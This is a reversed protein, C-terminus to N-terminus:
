TPHADGVTGAGDCAMAGLVVAESAALRDALLAVRDTFDFSDKPVDFEQEFDIRGTEEGSVDGTVRYSSGEDRITVGVIVPDDEDLDARYFVRYSFLAFAPVTSRGPRSLSGPVAASVKAWLGDLSKQVDAHIRDWDVPEFSQQDPLVRLRSLGHADTFDHARKVQRSSM